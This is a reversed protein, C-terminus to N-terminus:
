WTRGCKNCIYKVPPTGTYFAPIHECTIDQTGCRPCYRDGMAIYEGEELTYIGDKKTTKSQKLSFEM